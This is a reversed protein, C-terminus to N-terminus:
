EIQALEPGPFFGRFPRAEEVVRAFSPRARLRKYYAALRPHTQAIPELADAYFLAPAAACDAFSFVGGLAWPGEGIQDDLVGYATRLMGRWLVVGAPDKAGEPRLRDGVIRQLPDQVYNDFLRDLLRARLRLAPDEPLLRVKGPYFTDLHEIVISAEPLVVGRATDELVPMKGMPWLAYFAARGAEDGLDVPVAEFPTENEYFAMIAKQCYSAFPHQHLRLTM